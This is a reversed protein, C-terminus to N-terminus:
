VGAPLALLDGHHIVARLAGDACEALRRDLYSEAAATLGPQHACAAAVWGRLWEALLPAEAAGLRWPSAHRHVVAGRREFEGAAFDVADPGLLDRGEATRRQHANFAAEIEGDLPDPPTLEVRGEVSLALLTPHEACADALATVEDATLLDLLASATVLSTDALDDAHLQTIDRRETEVTVPEGGMGTAPLNESAHTLLVPDRDHLIWRQPCPLRRALWRGMAGTGCGLDRIVLPARSPLRTRLLDVLEGARAAADASERLRLWEVSFGSGSGTAELREM